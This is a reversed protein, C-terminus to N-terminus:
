GVFFVEDLVATSHICKTNTFHTFLNFVSCQVCWFASCHAMKPYLWQRGILWIVSVTYRHMSDSSFFILKSVETSRMFTLSIRHIISHLWMVVHVNLLRLIRLQPQQKSSKTVKRCWKKDIAVKCCKKKANIETPM